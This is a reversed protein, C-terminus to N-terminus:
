HIRIKPCSCCSTCFNAEKAATMGSFRSDPTAGRCGSLYRTLRERHHLAVCGALAGRCPCTSSTVAGGYRPLDFRAHCPESKDHMNCPKDRLVSSSFIEPSNL